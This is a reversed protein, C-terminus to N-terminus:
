PNTVADYPALMGRIVWLVIAIGALMIIWYVIRFSGARRM